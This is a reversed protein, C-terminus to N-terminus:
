TKSNGFDGHNLKLMSGKGKKSIEFEALTEVEKGKGLDDRWAYAVEKDAVVRMVKGVMKHGGEWTFEIVGGKKLDVEAKSLFWQVLRDPETLAAFVKAPPADYYYTQSIKLKGKTM